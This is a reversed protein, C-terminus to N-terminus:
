AIDENFYIVTGQCYVRHRYVTVCEAWQAPRNQM